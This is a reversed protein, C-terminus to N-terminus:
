VWLHILYLLDQLAILKLVLETSYAAKLKSKVGDNNRAEVYNIYSKYFKQGTKTNVKSIKKNTKFDHLRDKRVIVYITECIRSLKTPSTQFPISTKKKWTIMDAVTLDTQNHLENLLLIPLIPCENHYSLNYCIVGDETLIREFEQFEAIRQKIYDDNSLNDIDSYGNNYYVDNRKTAINYPPSTIIGDVFRNPIKSMTDLNNENYIKNIEIM